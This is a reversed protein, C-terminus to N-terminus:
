LVKVYTNEHLVYGCKEYFKSLIEMKSSKLSGMSVFRCKKNEAWSEFAKIMQAGLKGQRVSPDVYWALEIACKAAKNCIWPSVVGVLMAKRDDSILITADPNKLIGYFSERTDSENYGMLLEVESVFNSAMSLISDIDSINAQRIM